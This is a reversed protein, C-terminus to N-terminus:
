WATKRELSSVEFVYDAVLDRWPVRPTFTRLHDYYGGVVRNLYAIQVPPQFSNIYKISARLRKPAREHLDASAFDYIHEKVCPTMMDERWAVYFDQPVPPGDVQRAGIRVMADEMADYDENMGAAIIDAFDRAVDESVHKVCGFDYLVITGDPRFAYNGPNPDAHVARHRFIQSLSMRYLREGIQDRTEQPYAALEELRDGGEFTLTLVRQSSREGVVQPVVIYDDDKHLEAFLRVNDAENCYDLEEHLRDSIEEFLADFARRHNRNIGTLKLVFKLQKLDSDCAEDVGPYQVKVVVDRGDDTVARHVQGISASAFPEKEFSKFLLEPPQGLEREIQEAIVEYPMPPADKQLAKLPESLEKPLLDSGASAMQGIKMVAGKLDGLTKAILEGNALNTAQRAQENAEENRFVSSVRERTYNSAVQATMTALRAFRKSRSVPGKNESM